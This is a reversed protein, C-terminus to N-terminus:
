KIAGIQLLAALIHKCVPSYDIHPIGPHPSQGTEEIWWDMAQSMKRWDPCQCRTHMVWGTESDVHAHVEYQRSGTQSHVVFHGPGDHM